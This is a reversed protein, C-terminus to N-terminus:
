DWRRAVDLYNTFATTRLWSDNYPIVLHSGCVAIMTDELRGKVDYIWDPLSIPNGMTGSLRGEYGLYELMRKLPRQLVYDSLVQILGLDKNGDSSFLAERNEEQEEVDYRAQAREIALQIHHRTLCQIDQAGSPFRRVFHTGGIM